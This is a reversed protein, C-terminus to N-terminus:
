ECLDGVILIKAPWFRTGNYKPEALETKPDKLRSAVAQRSPQKSDLEIEVTHRGPKGDYVFLTATRHYTCYCDFRALPYASRNGDVTVWVQGGDPGLLDYIRCSTGNFAFVLKSGPTKM